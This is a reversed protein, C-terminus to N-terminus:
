SCFHRCRCAAVQDLIPDPVAFPMHALRFAEAIRAADLEDSFCGLNYQHHQLQVFAAWKKTDGRWGVGRFRSSGGLAPKNQANQAPSALRLNGRRNDLRDRNIHDGKAGLIECHMFVPRRNPRPTRRVAYGSPIREWRYRALHADGQDVLAVGGNSLVIESM